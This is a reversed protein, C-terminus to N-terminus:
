AHQCITSVMGKGDGYGRPASCSASAYADEADLRGVNKQIAVEQRVKPCVENALVNKEVRQRILELLHQSTTDHKLHQSDLLNSAVSISDGFIM